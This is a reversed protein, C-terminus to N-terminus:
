QETLHKCISLDGLQAAAWPWPRSPPPSTPKTNLRSPSLGAQWLGTRQARSEDGEQSQLSVAPGRPGTGSGTRSLDKPSRGQRQTLLEAGNLVGPVARSAKGAM